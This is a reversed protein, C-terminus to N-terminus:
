ADFARFNQHRLRAISEPSVRVNPPVLLYVHPGIKSIKGGLTYVVGSSFDVIRRSLDSDATTLNVVIARRSKLEDGIRKSDEYSRPVMVDLDEDHAMTTIPRVSTSPASPRVLPRRPPSSAVNTAGDLVSVSSQRKPLMPEPAPAVSSGWPADYSEETPTDVFPREAASNRGFEDYDDETLGVYVM